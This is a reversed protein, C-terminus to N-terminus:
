RTTVNRRLADYYYDFDDAHIDVETPSDHRIFDFTWLSSLETPETTLQFSKVAGSNANVTVNATASEIIPKCRLAQISPLETYLLGASAGSEYRYGSAM